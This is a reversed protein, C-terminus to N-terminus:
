EQKRLRGLIDVGGMQGEFDEVLHELFYTEGYGSETQFQTRDPRKTIKLLRKYDKEDGSSIM